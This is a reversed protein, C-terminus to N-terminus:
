LESKLAALKTIKIGQSSGTQDEGVISDEFMFFYLNLVNSVTSVIHYRRTIGSQASSFLVENVIEEQASSGFVDPAKSASITAAWATGTVSKKDSGASIPALKHQDGANLVTKVDTPTANVFYAVAMTNEGQTM